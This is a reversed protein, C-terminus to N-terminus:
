VMVCAHKTDHVPEKSFQERDVSCAISMHFVRKHLDHVHELSLLSIVTIDLLCACAFSMNVGRRYKVSKNRVGDGGIGWLSSVSSTSATLSAPSIM